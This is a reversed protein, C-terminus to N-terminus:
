GNYSHNSDPVIGKLEITDGVNDYISTVTVIGVTHTAGTTAVGVVHLSDGISYSSGGDM